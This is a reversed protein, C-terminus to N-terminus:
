LFLAALFPVAGFASVGVLAYAGVIAGSMLLAAPWVPFDPSLRARVHAFVSDAFVSVRSKSM